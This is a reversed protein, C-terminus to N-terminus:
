LSAQLACPMSFGSCFREVSPVFFAVCHQTTGSNTMSLSRYSMSQIVQNWVVFATLSPFFSWHMPTKWQTRCVCHFAPLTSFSWLGRHSLTFSCIACHKWCHHGSPKRKRPWLTNEATLRLDFHSCKIFIIIPICHYNPTYQQTHSRGHISAEGLCWEAEMTKERWQTTMGFLNSCQKQGLRILPKIILQTTPVTLIPNKWIIIKWIFYKRM